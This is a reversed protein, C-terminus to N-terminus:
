QCLYDPNVYSGNIRLEYHAHTNAGNVGLCYLEGAIEGSNGSLVLATMHTLYFDYTNAGDTSHYFAYEGGSYSGRTTSSWSLVTNNITPFYVYSGSGPGCNDPSIPDVIDTSWGYEPCSTASPNYCTSASPYNPQYQCRARFLSSPLSWACPTGVATWYTNTGHCAPFAGCSIVGNPIPCTGSYDIPTPYPGVVPSGFGGPPVIYAGSNIIFLVIIIFIVLGVLAMFFNVILYAIASAIGGILLSAGAILLALARKGWKKIAEVPDSIFDGVVNGVFRGIAKGAATGAPGFTSGLVSGLKDGVQKTIKKATQKAVQKKAVKAAKKHAASPSPPPKVPEQPPPPPPTKPVPPPEQPPPPTPPVPVEPPEQSITPIVPESQRQFITKVRSIRKSPAKIGLQTAKQPNEEFFSEQIREEIEIPVEDNVDNLEEYTLSERGELKSTIHQTLQEYRYELFKSDTKLLHTPLKARGMKEYEQYRDPFDRKFTRLSDRLVINEQIIFESYFGRKKDWAIGEPVKASEKKKINIFDPDKGIYPALPKQDNEM